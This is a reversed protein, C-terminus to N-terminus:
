MGTIATAFDSMWTVAATVVSGISTLLASMTSVPENM